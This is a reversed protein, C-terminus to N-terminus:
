ISKVQTILAISSQSSNYSSLWTTPPQSNFLKYNVSEVTQLDYLTNNESTKALIAFENSKDEIESEKM